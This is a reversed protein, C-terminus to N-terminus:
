RERGRNFDREVDRARDPSGSNRAEEAAERARKENASDGANRYREAHGNLRDAVERPSEGGGRRTDGRNGTRDHPERNRRDRDINDFM